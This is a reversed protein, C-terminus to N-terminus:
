DLEQIDKNLEFTKLNYCEGFALAGIKRLSPPAVFSELGSGFFAHYGIEEVVSGPEFVIQKLKKCHAFAEKEIVLRHKSESHGGKATGSSHGCHPEKEVTGLTRAQIQGSDSVTEDNIHERAGPVSVREFGCEEFCEEGIRELGGSLLM